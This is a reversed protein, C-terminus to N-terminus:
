NVVCRVAYAHAYGGTSDSRRAQFVSGYVNHLAFAGTAEPNPLSSSWFGYFKLEGARPRYNENSFYFEDTKGQANYAVIWKYGFPVEQPNVKSIELIGKAGRRQAEEAHERATPLHTGDPCSKTAQYQNVFRVEGARDRLIGEADLHDANSYCAVFFAFFLFHHIQKM